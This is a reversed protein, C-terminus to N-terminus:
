LFPKGENINNAIKRMLRGIHNGKGLYEEDEPCWTPDKDSDDGENDILSNHDMYDFHDTNDFNAELSSINLVNNQTYENSESPQGCNPTDFENSAIRSEDTPLKQGKCIHALLLSRFNFHEGCKACIM